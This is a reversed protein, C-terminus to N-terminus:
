RQPIPLDPAPQLGLVRVPEISTELGTRGLQGFRNSGFCHITGARTLTCTHADGAAIVDLPQDHALRLPLNSWSADSGLQGSISGDGPDAPANAGWCWGAGDTDVACTHHYGVRLEALPPVGAVRVPGPAGPPAGSGLQGIGNQGWCWGAGDDAIACTHGHGSSVNVIGALDPVAIPTLSGSVSRPQGLQGLFNDGWCMVVGDADIGCTHRSGAALRSFGQDTEVLVPLASSIRTGDGLQGWRNDGWCLARGDADLACTHAAGTAIRAFRRDTDVPRPAARGELGGDGLQGRQNAGWCHVVGQVDLACTHGGVAVMGFRHDAVVRVPVYVQWTHGAGLQGDDNRGWCTVIGHGDLACTHHAVAHTVLLPPTPQVPEVPDWPDPEVTARPGCGAHAGFLVLLLPRILRM